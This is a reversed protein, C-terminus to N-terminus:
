LRFLINYPIETPMHPNEYPYRPVENKLLSTRLTDIM